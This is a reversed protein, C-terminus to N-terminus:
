RLHFFSRTDSLPIAELTIRYDHTGLPGNAASLDIALWAPDAALTRYLFDLRSASAPDQPTKKGVFVQLVNTGSRQVAHCAKTNIHLILIDCWHAPSSLAESLEAFGFDLEAYIDGQLTSDTQSSQIALAQGYPNHQLAPLLTQHQADLAAATGGAPVEAWASCLCAVLAVAPLLRRLPFCRCAM